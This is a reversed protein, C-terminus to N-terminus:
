ITATARRGRAKPEQETREPTKAARFIRQDVSLPGAGFVVFAVLLALVLGALELSQDGSLLHQNWHVFFVAGVLVPVQALAAFRTLLGLALFLGGCLHAMGVYHAILMPWFWDAKGFFSIVKSPDAIFLAGRVFLAVGLYMRVLDFGFRPDDAFTRARALFNTM